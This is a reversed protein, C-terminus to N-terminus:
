YENQKNTVVVPKDTTEDTNKNVQMCSTATLATTLSVVATIIIEIIRKWIASKRQPTM